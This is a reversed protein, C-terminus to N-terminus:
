TALRHRQTYAIRGRRGPRPASKATIRGRQLPGVQLIDNPIVPPRIDRPFRYAQLSRSGSIPIVALQSCQTHWGTIPCARYIM